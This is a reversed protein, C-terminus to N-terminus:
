ENKKQYNSNTEKRKKPILSELVDRIIDSAQRDMLIKLNKVKKKLITQLKTM